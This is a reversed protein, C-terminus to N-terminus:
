LDFLGRPVQRTLASSLRPVRLLARTRVQVLTPLQVPVAVKVRGLAIGRSRGDPATGDAGVSALPRCLNDTRRPPMEVGSSRDLINFVCTRVVM